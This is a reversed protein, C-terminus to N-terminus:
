FSRFDECLHVDSPSVVIYANVVRISPFSGEGRLASKKFRRNHEEAEAVSRGGELRHHIVDLTTPLVAGNQRALKAVRALAPVDRCDAAFSPVDGV